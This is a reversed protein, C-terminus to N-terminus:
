PLKKNQPDGSEAHKQRKAGKRATAFGRDTSMFRALM